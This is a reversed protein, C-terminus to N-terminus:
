HKNEGEFLNVILIPNVNRYSGEGEGGGQSEEQSGRGPHLQGSWVKGQLVEDQVVM